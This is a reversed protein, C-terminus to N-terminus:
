KKFQSLGIRQQSTNGPQAPNSPLDPDLADNNKCDINLACLFHISFDAIMKGLGRLWKSQKERDFSLAAEIGDRVMQEYFEPNTYYDMDKVDSLENIEELYDVYKEYQDIRDKIKKIREFLEEVTPKENDKKIANFKIQHISSGGGKVSNEKSLENKINQAILEIKKGPGRFMWQDINIITDQKSEIDQLYLEKIKWVPVKAHGYDFVGAGFVEDYRIKLM